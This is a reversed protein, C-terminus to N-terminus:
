ENVNEILDKCGKKMEDLKKKQAVINKEIQIISQTNNLMEQARVSTVGLDKILLDRERHWDAIVYNDGLRDLCNKCVELNSEKRPKTEENKSDSM